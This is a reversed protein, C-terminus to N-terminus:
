SWQNSGPILSQPLPRPSESQGTRLLRWMALTSRGFTDIAPVDEFIRSAALVCRSMTQLYPQSAPFLSHALSVPAGRVQAAQDGSPRASHRPVASPWHRKLSAAPLGM